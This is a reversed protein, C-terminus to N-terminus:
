RYKRVGFISTGIRILNAGEEIATEFDNSMGMSLYHMDINDINEKGIDIFINRLGRFVARTEELDTTYPAITMLGRVKINGLHSVSKMFESVILPSIGSKTAEGSVNVQVLVDMVRGKQICRKNLEEALELRDLSHVMTVKDVIYKVKNTQLQGIIHWKCRDDIKDYKEMLEQVRNEGLDFFGEEVAKNILLPEVTKTVAIVTIEQPDRGSRKAAEAVRKRIDEVNERVFGSEIM